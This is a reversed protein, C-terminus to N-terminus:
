ATPDATHRDSEGLTQAFVLPNKKLLPEYGDHILQRGECARVEDLAKNMKAM